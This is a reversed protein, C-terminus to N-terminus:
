AIDPPLPQSRFQQLHLQILQMLAERGIETGFRLDGPTEFFVISDIPKMALMQFLIHTVPIPLAAVQPDLQAYSSTMVDKLTPFVYVVNKTVNSQTSQALTTMLWGQEDTQLVYYQPHKLQEAIGKLAPAIAQVEASTVGYKPADHILVQLQQDINM